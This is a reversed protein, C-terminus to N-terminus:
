QRVYQLTVCAFMSIASTKNAKEYIDFFQMKPIM